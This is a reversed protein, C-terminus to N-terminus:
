EGSRNGNWPKQGVFYGGVDQPTGPVGPIGDPTAGGCNWRGDTGGYCWAQNHGQHVGAHAVGNATIMTVGNPNEGDAVLDDMHRGRFRKATM